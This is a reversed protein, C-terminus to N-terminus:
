YASLQRSVNPTYFATRPERTRIRQALRDGVQLCSGRHVEDIRMNVHDRAGGVIIFSQGLHATNGQAFRRKPRAEIAAADLAEAIVEPLQGVELWAPCGLVANLM